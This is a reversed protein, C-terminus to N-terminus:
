RSLSCVTWECGGSLNASWSALTSMRKGESFLLISFMWEKLKVFDFFFSCWVFALVLCIGAVKITLYSTSIQLYLSISIPIPRHVATWCFFGMHLREWTVPPESGQVLQSQWDLSRNERPSKCQWAGFKSNCRHSLDAEILNELHEKKRGSLVTLNSSTWGKLKM